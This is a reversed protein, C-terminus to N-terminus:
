CKPSRACRRNPSRSFEGSFGVIRANRCSTKEETSVGASEGQNPAGTAFIDGEVRLSSNLFQLLLMAVLAAFCFSGGLACSSATTTVASRACIVASARVCGSSAAAARIKRQTPLNSLITLPSNVGSRRALNSCAAFAKFSLWYPNSVHAVTTNRLFHPWKIIFQAARNLCHTQQHCM